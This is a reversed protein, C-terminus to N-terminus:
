VEKSNNKKVYKKYLEPFNVLTPMVKKKAIMDELEDLEIWKINIVEKEDIKTNELQVDKRYLWIEYFDHHSDRRTSLMCIGKDGSLDIGLEERVERNIANISNEGSLASGATCEWLYSGRKKGGRQSMLIQGSFNVIWVRVVLHYEYDLLEEKRTKTYGLKNRNKDYIDWKENENDVNYDWNVM